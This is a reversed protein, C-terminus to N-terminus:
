DSVQLAQCQDKTLYERSGRGIERLFLNLNSVCHKVAMKQCFESNPSSSVGSFSISSIIVVLVISVM